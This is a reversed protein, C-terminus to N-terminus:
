AGNTFASLSPDDLRQQPKAPSLPAIRPLPLWDLAHQIKRDWYGWEHEGPDEEFDIELGISRCHQLFRQNADYLYDETGCCQYLAPRPSSADKLRKALAMLDNDSDQFSEGFIAQWEPLLVDRESNLGWLDLAGSLSAAAAFREPHSLALKFAGYGGMSLGAAFTKERDTSIPFFAQCLAPLEDTLFDWYRYGINMNTYFSRQVAPMIIAVDYQEAYRELSTRRTWVTHDDSLGHLLYLVPSRHGEGKEAFVQQNLIANITCSVGLTESKFDCRLLAM